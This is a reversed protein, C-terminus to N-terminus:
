PITNALRRLVIETGRQVLSIMRLAHAEMNVIGHIPHVIDSFDGSNAFMRQLAQCELVYEDPSLPTMDPPINWVLNYLRGTGIEIHGATNYQYFDVGEDMWFPAADQLTYYRSRSVYYNM